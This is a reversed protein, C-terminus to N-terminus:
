PVLRSARDCRSTRGPQSTQVHRFGCGILRFTSGKANVQADDVKGRVRFAFGETTLLNLLCTLTMCQGAGVDESAHCWSDALRWRLFSEPLSRWTGSSVHVM